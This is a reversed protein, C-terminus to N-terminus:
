NEPEFVRDELHKELDLYDVGKSWWIPAPKDKLFHDFFEMMRVAYDKRNPLKAIGHNEGKYTIMVVPKGLRRLGLYYEIGQTFNVAGDQDNHLLLLPTQVNKIHYVPSNRTFAELNDWYGPTLRGQSAEFISQNTIGANGYILSYMSIMDTLPAGAAAAKFINTQTILFSTQYGGWSHGQIAVRKEDVIGTAIAAKVAPVVCAVASMGPDNLKYKIDPMIVAYGNSNYVAKNFGIRSFDPMTYANLGDTLREYIYTITPYSKGQVYNAPLFIAAQLSDGNASVYNILKVGSSWAYKRQDPTNQTVQKSNALDASSSVFIEPAHEFDEKSFTYVNANLAKSMGSYFNDDLFLTSLHGGSLSVIGTQKTSASIVGFYQTKKLDIGQEDDYVVFRRAIKLKKLKWNDTLSTASKGDASIHWLDYNDSILVSKSDASWGEFSTSPKNVNHDDLEDVFSTKLNGTLNVKEGNALNNIFFSGDSYYSVANGVPAFNFGSRDSNEYFKEFILKKLGSKLDISYIDAYNQGDLNSTLEYKSHDIGIAYIQKPGVHVSRLTSDALQIFRSDKLQFECLFSFAKDGKEEVQQQSQLKHDQWNWIVMDPKDLEDKKSEEAKKKNLTDKKVAPAKQDTKATLNSKDSVSTSDTKPKTKKEAKSIGFFLTSIDDSWYPTRDGSVSFGVPLDKNNLGKIFTVSNTEGDLKTLGIVTNIENKYNDDKKSKLLALATGKQNWNISKYVSKDNDISLTVGTKINHLYIGNGNQGNADITYALFDGGKNFSYENVSGINFSKKTLMDYLLFDTGKAADKDKSAGEPAAFHIGVWGPYKGSFSFEKVREFEENTNAELNIILLKDYLTKNSKKASKVEADGPSVKFAVFKSDDSFVISNSSSGVPFHFTTTDAVKRIVVEQNGEVPGLVSAFWKGDPSLANFQSKISRWKAVDKWTLPTKQQAALQQVFFIFLLFLIPKKIRTM